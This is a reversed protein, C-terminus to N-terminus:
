IICVQLVDKRTKEANSILEKLMCNLSGFRSGRGQQQAAELVKKVDSVETVAKWVIEFYSTIKTQNPDSAVKLLALQKRSTRSWDNVQPFIAGSVSLSSLPASSKSFPSLVSSPVYIGHRVCNSSLPLPVTSSVDVTSRHVYNPSLPSPVSSPMDTSFSLCNSSLPSPVSLPVDVTSHHM